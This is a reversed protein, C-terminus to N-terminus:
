GLWKKFVETVCYNLNEFGEPRRSTVQKSLIDRKVNDNIENTQKNLEQFLFVKKKM